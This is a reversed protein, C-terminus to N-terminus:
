VPIGSKRCARDYIDNWSLDSAYRLANQRCANYFSEDAMLRKIAKTLDERDYNIAIGMPVKEIIEAIWPVRTIIVPLGCALYEKPKTPDAYYTINNPNETYTALAVGCRPLYRFLSDHDMAGLFRVSRDVGKAKAIDKLDREFPGTGIVHLEIQPICMKVDSMVDLVLQVGKSETLHSVAVLVYRNKEEPKCHEVKGLEVGVPVILNRGQEIGQSERVAAIRPSINWIYDANRICIRDILHYLRNFIGLLFRKQTYDIVYFVVTEVFGLRKMVLGIFANLNDIGIYCGIKKRRKFVQYFAFLAGRIYYLAYIKKMALNRPGRIKQLVDGGNCEVALSSEVSCYSFPITIYLFSKKKDQLYRALAQVPGYVETVHGVVAIEEKKEKNRMEVGVGRRVVCFVGSLM